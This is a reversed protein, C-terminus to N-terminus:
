ARELEEGGQLLNSLPLQFGPIVEGGDLTDERELLRVSRASNDEFVQM